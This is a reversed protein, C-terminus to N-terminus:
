GGLSVHMCGHDDPKTEVWRWGAFKARAVPTSWCERWIFIDNQYPGWISVPSYAIGNAEHGGRDTPYAARKKAPNWECRPKRGKPEWTVIGGSQVNFTTGKFTAEQQWFVHTAYPGAHGAKRLCTHHMPTSPYSCEIESLCKPSGDDAFELTFDM